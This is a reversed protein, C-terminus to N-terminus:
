PRSTSGEARHFWLGSDLSRTPWPPSASPPLQSSPIPPAVPSSLRGSPPIDSEPAGVPRPHSRGPRDSRRRSLPAPFNGAKHSSVRLLVFPRRAPRLRCQRTAWRQAASQAPGALTALPHLAKQLGQLRKSKPCPLPTRPLNNLDQKACVPLHAQTNPFEPGLMAVLLFPCATIRRVSILHARVRIHQSSSFRSFRFQYTRRCLFCWKRPHIRGAFSVPPVRLVECAFLDPAQYPPNKKHSSRLRHLLDDEACYLRVGIYGVNAILHPARPRPLRASIDGKHAAFPPDLRHSTRMEVM